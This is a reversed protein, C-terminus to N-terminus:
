NGAETLKMISTGVGLWNTAICTYNGYISLTFSVEGSTDNVSLAKGSPDTWSYFIPLDGSIAVCVLYVLSGNVIPSPQPHSRSYSVVTPSVVLFMYM